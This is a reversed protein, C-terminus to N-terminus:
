YYFEGRLDWLSITKDYSGSILMEQEWAMCLVAAKHVSSTLLLLLYFWPSFIEHQLGLAHQDNVLHSYGNYMPHCIISLFNHIRDDRTILLLTINTITYLDRKTKSDLSWLWLKLNTFLSWSQGRMSDQIEDVRICFLTAKIM